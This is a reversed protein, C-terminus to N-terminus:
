ALATLVRGRLVDIAQHLGQRDLQRMSVFEAIVEATTGMWRSEPVPNLWAIRRVKERMQCIFRETAEIRQDDFSGRAAGADSVILICANRQTLGELLNPVSVASQYGRDRYVYTAPYDHFYYTNVRNLRGGRSVSEVLRRALKHFPVMSGGHDILLILHVLNTHRPVYVPRLFMGQKATLTITGEVDVETVTGRRASRRLYRWAQKMQRSSAPFYDADAWPFTVLSAEPTAGGVKLAQVAAAADKKTIKQPYTSTSSYGAENGGTVQKGSGPPDNPPAQLHMSLKEFWHELLREEQNSKAWIAKCLRLLSARDPLGFGAELARVLMMYEQVGLQMGADRLRYFLYILPLELDSM